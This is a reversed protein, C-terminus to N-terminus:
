RAESRIETLTVGSTVLAVVGAAIGFSALVGHFVIVLALASAPDMGCLAVLATKGALEYIGVSASTSTPVAFSLFHAVLMALVEATGVEIGLAAACLGLCTALVTWEVATLALVILLAHPRGAALRMGQVLRLLVRSLPRAAPMRATALRRLPTEVLAPRLTLLTLAVAALGVVVLGFMLVQAL